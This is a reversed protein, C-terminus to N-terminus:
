LHARRRGEVRKSKQPKGQKSAPTGVRTVGETEFLAQSKNLWNLKDLDTLSDPLAAVAKKAADGLEKIRDKLMNAILERYAKAELEYPELEQVRGEHMEALEKWKNETELRAREADTQATEAQAKYDVQAKERAKIRAQGIRKDIFKQQEESFTLEDDQTEETM